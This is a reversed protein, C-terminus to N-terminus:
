HWSQHPLKSSRIPKSDTKRLGPVIEIDAVVM